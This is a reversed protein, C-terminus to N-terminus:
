KGSLIDKYMIAFVKWFGELGGVSLAYAFDQTYVWRAETGTEKRIQKVEHPAVLEGAILADSLRKMDGSDYWRYGSGRDRHANIEAAILFDFVGKWVAVKFEEDKAHTLDVEAEHEEGQWTRGTVKGTTVRQEDQGEKYLLGRKEVEYQIFALAEVGFMQELRTMERSRTYTRPENKEDTRKGNKDLIYWEEDLYLDEDNSGRRKALLRGSADREEIREWDIVRDEFNIQPWTSVVYRLEHSIGKQIKIIEEQNVIPHGYTDYGKIIEPLHLQVQEYIWKYVGAGNEVHNILFQAQLGDGFVIKKEVDRIEVKAKFNGVDVANGRADKFIVTGDKQLDYDVAGLGGVRREGDYFVIEGNPSGGEREYSVVKKIASGDIDIHKITGEESEHTGLIISQISRKNEDRAGEFFTLGIRNIGELNHRMGYASARKEAKERKRKDKFNLIRTWWDFAVSDTDNRAAIGTIHTMSYAFLEALKAEDESIGEKEMIAKQIRKRVQEQQFQNPTAILFIDLDRMFEPHPLYKSYGQGGEEPLYIDVYERKRENFVRRTIYKGDGDVAYLILSGNEDFWKGELPDTSVKNKKHKPNDPNYKFLTSDKGFIDVLQEYDYISMYTALADRVANGVYFNGEMKRQLEGKGEVQELDAISKRKTSPLSLIFEFFNSRTIPNRILTGQLTKYMEEFSGRIPKYQLDPNRVGMLLFTEFLLETHLAEYEDNKEKTGDPKEHLFFSDGFTIEYFSIQGGYMDTRVNTGIDSFFNIQDIPNADHVKLLNSRAWDLFNGTNVRGTKEDILAQEGTKRWKPASRKMILTALDELSEPVVIPTDEGHEMRQRYADFKTKLHAERAEKVLEETRETDIGNAQLFERYRSDYVDAQKRVQEMAEELKETEEPSLKKEPGTTGPRGSVQERSTNEPLEYELEVDPPKDWRAYNKGTQQDVRVTAGEPIALGPPIEQEETSPRFVVIGAVERLHNLAQQEDADPRRGELSSMYSRYADRAQRRQEEPNTERPPQEPGGNNGEAMFIDGGAELNSSNPQSTLENPEQEKM